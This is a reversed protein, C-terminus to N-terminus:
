VDQNSYFKLTPLFEIGLVAACVKLCSRLDSITQVECDIVKRESTVSLSLHIVIGFSFAFVITLM